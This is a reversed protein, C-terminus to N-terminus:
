RTDSSSLTTRLLIFRFYDFIKSGDVTDDRKHKCCMREPHWQLGIIPLKKHMFGEIVSDLPCTQILELDTGLKNCGQHHASNVYFKSGYLKYLFSDKDAQTLHIQDYGIHKHRSATELDDFVTGGLALNILQMGKCIGLIPKGATMFQYFLKFQLEDELSRNPLIDGGGPLILGDIGSIDSIALIPLPNIGVNLLANKYNPFNKYRCAVIVHM